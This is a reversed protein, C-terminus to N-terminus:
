TPTIVSKGFYEIKVNSVLGGLSKVIQLCSVLNPM